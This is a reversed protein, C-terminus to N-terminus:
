FVRLFMGGQEDVGSTTLEPSSSSRLMKAMMMGYENGGRLSLEKTEWAARNDNVAETHNINEFMNKRSDKLGDIVHADKPKEAKMGYNVMLAKLECKLASMMNTKAKVKKEKILDNVSGIDHIQHEDNFSVVSATRRMGRHMSGSEVDPKSSVSDGVRDSHPGSDNGDGNDSFRTQRRNQSMFLWAENTGHKSVEPTPLPPVVVCESVEDILDLASADDISNYIKGNINGGISSSRGLRHADQRSRELLEHLPSELGTLAEGRRVRGEAKDGGPADPLSEGSVGWKEDDAAQSISADDRQSRPRMDLFAKGVSSVPEPHTASRVIATLFSEQPSASSGSAVSDGGRAHGSVPIAIARSTAVGFDGVSSTRSLLSGCNPVSFSSNRRLIGRPAATVLKDSM